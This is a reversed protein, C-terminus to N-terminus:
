TQAQSCPVSLGLNSAQAEPHGISAWRRTATISPRDLLPAALTSCKDLNGMMLMRVVSYKDLNGMMLM